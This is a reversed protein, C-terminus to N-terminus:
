CILLSQAKAKAAIIHQLMSHLLAAALHRVAATQRWQKLQALAGHM